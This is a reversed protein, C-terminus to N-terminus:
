VCMSHFVCVPIIRCIYFVCLYFLCWISIPLSFVTSYASLVCRTLFYYINCTCIYCLYCTCSSMSCVLLSLVCSWGRPISGIYISLPGEMTPGRQIWTAAGMGQNPGRQMDREPYHTVHGGIGPLHHTQKGITGDREADRSDWMKRRCPRYHRGFQFLHRWSWHVEPPPCSFRFKPSTRCGTHHGRQVKNNNCWYQQGSGTSRIQSHNRFLVTGISNISSLM